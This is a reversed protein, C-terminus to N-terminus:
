DFSLAGMHIWAKSVKYTTIRTSGTREKPLWLKQSGLSHQHLTTRASIHLNHYLVFANKQARQVSWHNDNM